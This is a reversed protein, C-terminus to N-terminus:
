IAQMVIVYIIGIMQVTIFFLIINLANMLTDVIHVLICPYSSLVILKEYFHLWNLTTFNFLTSLIFIVNRYIYILKRKYQWCLLTSLNLVFLITHIILTYIHYGTTYDICEYIEINYGISVLKLFSSCIIMFRIILMIIIQKNIRQDISIHDLYYTTGTLCRM